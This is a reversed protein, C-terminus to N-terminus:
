LSLGNQDHDGRIGSFWDVLRHCVGRGAVVYLLRNHIPATEPGNQVALSRVEYDCDAGAVPSHHLRRDFTTRNVITRADRLWGVSANSDAPLLSMRRGGTARSRPRLVVARVHAILNTRRLIRELYIHAAHLIRQIRRGDPAVDRLITQACRLNGRNFLEAFRDGVRFLWLRRFLWLNADGYVQKEVYPQM